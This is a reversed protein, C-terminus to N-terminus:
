FNLMGRRDINNNNDTESTAPELKQLVDEIRHRIEPDTIDKLQKKLTPVIGKGLRLLDLSAKQREAYSSSGLKNILKTLNEALRKPSAAKGRETSRCQGVAISLEPGPLVAFGFEGGGLRGRLVSSNWLLIAVRGPNTPDFSIKQMDHPWIALDGFETILKLQRDAMSGYLEDSNNLAVHTLSNDNIIEESFVIQQIDSRSLSYTRGVLKIAPAIHEATFLGALVSGNKFYARHVNGRDSNLNANMVSDPTLLFRGHRTEFPLAVSSPDFVVRDGSRLVLSPGPFPIDSPRAPSVKFSWQSIASMPFNLTGGTPIEISVKQNPCSGGVVQGDSLLIFMGDAEDRSRAMGIIREVPLTIKGFRTELDFSKNLIKGYVPTSDSSKIIADFQDHRSLSINGFSTATPFNVIMSRLAPSLDRMVSFTRFTKMRECLKDYNGQSEFYCLVVTKKAPVKLNYIYQISSGSITVQPRTKAKKGCVLHMLAPNNSGGNAHTVFAWDKESWNGAGSSFSKRNINWNTGIRIVVPVTIDTTGPNVFIDLWRALGQDQYIKIRRYVQLNNRSYPGMEIEDGAKNAWGQNNNARFNSGGIMLYLGQGYANNTGSGISGYYQIDWRQAESDTLTYTLNIAKSKPIHLDKPPPGATACVVCASLIVCVTIIQSLKINGM